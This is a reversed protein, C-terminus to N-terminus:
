QVFGLPLVGVIIRVAEGNIKRRTFVVNKSKAFNTVLRKSFWSSNGVQQHAINNAKCFEIYLGFAEGIALFPLGEKDVQAWAPRAPWAKLAEGEGVQAVRITSNIWALVHDHELQYEAIAAASAASTTIKFNNQKLERYTEMVRNFIGPLDTEIMKSGIGRDRTGDEDDFKANFPAVLLKRYFGHSSDTGGPMVNCTMIVKARNEFEYSPKFKESVLLTGGSAINKIMEWFDRDRYSPTEEIICALAGDLRPLNFKDSFDAPRFNVAAEGLLARIIRLLTTKGNSGEGTM